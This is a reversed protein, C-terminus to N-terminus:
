ILLMIILFIEPSASPRTIVRSGIVETIACVLEVDVVEGELLPLVAEDVVAVLVFAFEFVLPVDLVVLPVFEFAEVVGEFEFLVAEDVVVEVAELVDGLKVLEVVGVVVADEDGVYLVLVVVALVTPVVVLELVTFAVEVALVVDVVVLLVPVVPVPVDVVCVPEVVGDILVVVGLVLVDDEVGLVVVELEVEVGLVLVELGLVAVLVLPVALVPEVM